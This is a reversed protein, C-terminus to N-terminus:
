VSPRSLRKRLGRETVGWTDQRGAQDGRRTGEGERTGEGPGGRRIWSRGASAAWM